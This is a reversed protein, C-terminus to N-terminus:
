IHLCMLRVAKPLCHIHQRRKIIFCITKLMIELCLIASIWMILKRLNVHSLHNEPEEILIVDTNTGSHELAFDTKIFVQKGTGKSDISIENEFIM